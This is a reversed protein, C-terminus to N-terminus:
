EGARHFSSPKKGADYTLTEQLMYGLPHQIDVRYKGGGLDTVIEAPWYEKTKGVKVLHGSGTHFAGSEHRKTLKGAVLPSWHDGSQPGGPARQAGLPDDIHVLHFVYTGDPYQNLAHILNPSYLVKDGVQFDAM